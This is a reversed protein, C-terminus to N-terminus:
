YGLIQWTEEAKGRGVGVINVDRIGTVPGQEELINIDGIEIGM